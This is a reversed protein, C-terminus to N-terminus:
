VVGYVKVSASVIRLLVEPPPAILAVLARFVPVFAKVTVLPPATATAPIVEPVRAIVPVPMVNFPM